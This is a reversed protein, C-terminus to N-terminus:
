SIMSWQIQCEYINKKSFETLKKSLYFFIAQQLRFYYTKKFGPNSRAFKLLDPPDLTYIKCFIIALSPPFSVPSFLHFNLFFSFFAFLPFFFSFHFFSFSPSHYNKLCVKKSLQLTNYIM